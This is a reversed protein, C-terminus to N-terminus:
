SAPRTSAPQTNPAPATAAPTPAPTPTAPAPAPAPTPAPAPAPATAPSPDTPQTALAVTPQTAPPVAPPVTAQTPPPVTPQTAPQLATQTTPSTTPRTAHHPGARLVVRANFRDPAGCWVTYSAADFPELLNAMQRIAGVPDFAKPPEPLPIPVDTRAGGREVTLTIGTPDRRAAILKKLSALPDAADLATGDCAVIVDGGRLRGHAPKNPITSHVVVREAEGPDIRCGLSSGETQQRRRWWEPELVNPYQKQLYALWGDFMSAIEAPQALLIGDAGPPGHNLPGVAALRPGLTPAEGRRARLIQRVHDSHTSVILEHDTIAWSLQVTHMYPCAVQTRFFEGLALEAITTDGFPVKEVRVAYPVDRHVAEFRFVGALSEGVVDLAEGLGDTDRVPVIAGIAPLDFGMNTTQEGPPIRGLVVIVDHGLKSLVDRDLSRGSLVMRTQVYLVYLKFISGASGKTIGDHQEAFDISQAWAALTSAPLPALVAANVDRVHDAIRQDLRGHINLVISDAQVTVGVAGEILRPWTSPLWQSPPAAPAHLPARADGTPAAPRSSTTPGTTPATTPATSPRAGAGPATTASLVDPLAAGPLPITPAALGEAPGSPRSDVAPRGEAVPRTAPAPQTTSVPRSTVGVEDLWLPMPPLAPETTTGLGPETPPPAATAQTTASPAVGPATTPAPQTALPPTPAPQTTPTPQSTTTPRSTATSRTTPLPAPAAIPSGAAFYLLARQEAPGLAAMQAQFSPQTALSDTATGALLAFATEYSSSPKGKQGMLLVVGNTAMCHQQEDLTYERVGGVKKPPPSLAIAAKEAADLNDPVALLVGDSVDPWNMLAVAAQRGLFERRVRVPDLGFTKALPGLAEDGSAPEDARGILISSFATGWDSRAWQDELDRLGRIEAFITAGPPVFRALSSELGHPVAPATTPATTPSTAPSVAPSTTPADAAATLATVGIAACM